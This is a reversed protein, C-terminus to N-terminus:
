RTSSRVLESDHDVMLKILEEFDVTHKWGLRHQAKRPNGLLQCADAPRRFSEDIRVYDQWRLGAHSFAINLLNRISRSVGTALVYDDPM